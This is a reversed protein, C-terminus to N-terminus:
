LFHVILSAETQTDLTEALYVFDFPLKGPPIAAPANDFKLLFAVRFDIESFLKTTLAAKANIRTDQFVTINGQPGDFSNLNFLGEINALFGTDASLKSTFGTFLRLSHISYDPPAANVQYTFDYGAEIVLENAEDKYLQRSYGVQVGGYVTKGAPTDAGIKAALFAADTVTFFRDYRLKLLWNKATESDQRSIESQSIKGDGNADNFVLISSRAYAVNGDFSFKNDADKRSVAAGGSLTFTRSNGTTLVLGASATAKWEVEKVEERKGYEFTQAHAVGATAVLAVLGLWTKM